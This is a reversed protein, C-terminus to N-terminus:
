CTSPSEVATGGEAVLLCRDHCCLQDLALVPCALRRCHHALCASISSEGCTENAPAAVPFGPGCRRAFLDHLPYALPSRVQSSGVWAPPTGKTPSPGAAGLAPFNDEDLVPAPPGQTTCCRAMLKGNCHNLVYYCWLLWPGKLTGTGGSTHGVMYKIIGRYYADLGSLTTM